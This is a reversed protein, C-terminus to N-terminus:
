YINLENTFTKPTSLLLLVYIPRSCVVLLTCLLVHWLHLVTVVIFVITVM